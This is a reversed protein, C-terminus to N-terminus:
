IIVFSMFSFYCFCTRSRVHRKLSLIYLFRTYSYDYVRKRTHHTCLTQYRRQSSHGQTPPENATTSRRQGDHATTPRCQRDKAKATTPKYGANAYTQKNAQTATTLRCPKIPGELAQTPQEIAQMQRPRLQSDHTQRQGEHAKQAQNPIPQHFIM